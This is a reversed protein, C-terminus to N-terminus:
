ITNKLHLYLLGAKFIFGFVMQVQFHRQEVSMERLSIDTTKAKVSNFLHLKLFTLM